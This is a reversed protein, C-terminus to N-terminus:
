STLYKLTWGYHHLSVLSEVMEPIDLKNFCKWSQKRAIEPQLIIGPFSSPFIAQLAQLCHADDWWGGPFIMMSILFAGGLFQGLFNYAPLSLTSFDISFGLANFMMVGFVQWM